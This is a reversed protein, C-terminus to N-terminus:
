LPGHFLVSLFPFGASLLLWTLLGPATEVTPQSSYSLLTEIREALRAPSETTSTFAVNLGSPVTSYPYPTSQLTSQVVALLAEAVILADVSQAAYCDARVERLLLLEDWLVTTGPLWSTMRRLWGLYFFLVNDKCNLHANEHAFVAEIQESSLTSLLSQSVILLPNWVGVYGAFVTDVDACYAVHSNMVVMKPLKAVSRYTQREQWMLYLLNLVAYVLIGTSLLNGVYCVSLGFMLGQSGMILIAIAVVILMVPSILFATLAWRWRCSWRQQLRGDYYIRLYALRVAIAIMLTAVLLGVHM